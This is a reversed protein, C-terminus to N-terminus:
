FHGTFYFVSWYTVIFVLFVTIFALRAIRDIKQSFLCLDYKSNNTRISTDLTNGCYEEDSKITESSPHITSAVGGGQRRICGNTHIVALETAKNMAGGDFSGSESGQETQQNRQHSSDNRKRDGELYVYYIVAFEVLMLFSLTECFAFWYDICMAYEVKPMESKVMESKTVLTLICTIGLTVRAPSSTPPIWLALWAIIVFTGTPIYANLFYYSLQRKLRFKVMVYSFNGVELFEDFGTDVHINELYFQSLELSPDLIIADTIDSGVLELQCDKVDHAYSMINLACDQYDFPFMRLDMNCTARVTIKISYYVFGASDIYMLENPKPSKHFTEQECSNSIFLDPVWVNNRIISGDLVARETSNHKLRLDQWHERLFMSTTFSMGAESIERITLLYM